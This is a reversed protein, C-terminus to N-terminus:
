VSLVVVSVVLKKKGERSKPKTKQFVAPVVLIVFAKETKLIKAVPAVVIRMKVAATAVLACALRLLRPATYMSKKEKEAPPRQNKLM